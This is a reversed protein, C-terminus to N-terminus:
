REKKIIHEKENCALQGKSMKVTVGNGNQYAKTM